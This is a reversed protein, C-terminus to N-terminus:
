SSRTPATFRVRPPIFGGFRGKMGRRFGRAGPMLGLERGRLLWDAQERTLRGDEVAQESAEQMAASKATRAAEQVDELAVGQKDAIDALSKETRLETFFEEPTLNLAEAVADFVAWGGHRGFGLPGFGRGFGEFRGPCPEEAPEQAIAPVVTAAGLLIVMLGAGALIMSRKNM